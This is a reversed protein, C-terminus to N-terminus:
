VLVMDWSILIRRIASLINTPNNMDEEKGELYFDSYTEDAEAIQMLLTSTTESVQEQMSEPIPLETFRGENNTDFQIM